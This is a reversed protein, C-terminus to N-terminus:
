VVCTFKQMRHSTVPNFTLPIWIGFSSRGHSWMPIEVVGGLRWLVHQSVAVRSTQTVRTLPQLSVTSKTSHLKARASGGGGGVGSLLRSASRSSVVHPTEAADANRRLTHWSEEGTGRELWIARNVGTPKQPRDSRGTQDQTQPLSWQSACYHADSLSYRHLCVNHLMQPQVSNVSCNKWCSIWLCNHHKGETARGNIEGLYSFDVTVRHNEPM